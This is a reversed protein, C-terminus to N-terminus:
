LTVGAGVTQGAVLTYGHAWLTLVAGGNLVLEIPKMSSPTM